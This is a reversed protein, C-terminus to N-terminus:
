PYLEFNNVQVNTNSKGRNCAYEFWKWTARSNNQKDQEQPVPM